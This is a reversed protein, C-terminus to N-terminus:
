DHLLLGATQSPTVNMAKAVMDFFDAEFQTVRVDSKLVKTLSDVIRVRDDTDLKSAVGALYKELPQSEFISSKAAVRINAASIDEGTQEKIIKRAAEIEVSQIDTDASTARALTMLLAENYLAKKEEASPKGGGFIKSISKFELISM